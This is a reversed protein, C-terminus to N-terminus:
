PRLYSSLSARARQYLCIFYFSHTKTLQVRLVVGSGIVGGLAPITMQHDGIWFLLEQGSDLVDMKKEAEVYNSIGCLWLTGCKLM